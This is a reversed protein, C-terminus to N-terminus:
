VGNEIEEKPLGLLVSFQGGAGCGIMDVGRTATNDIKTPVEIDGASPGHGVQYSEGYGWSYPEAAKSIAINHHTGCAALKMPPINPIVTPVPLYRPNPQPLASSPIQSKAFGLQNIDLRGWALVKGDSTVALSHHEGGGIWVIDYGRLGEVITPSTVSAGDEGGEGIACQGFQNLGWAFTEGAANVAFSHYAGAGILRIKSLALPRPILGNTRSREIVRRGMQFQQGNGWAFVRGTTSLALVHDTGCAIQCISYPPFSAIPAPRPSIKDSKSYGLLGDSARFTGWSYVMGDSAIAVSISDGCALKLIKAGNPFGEVLGPKSENPNLLEEESDSDDEDKMDTDNQEAASPDIKTDRGLSGQDNVGWTWVRGDKDLAAVHMGGVAIDVVGIEDHSLHPNLRPRKVNRDKSTPGLGLEGMSGAGFVFVDGVETKAAPFDNITEENRRHSATSRISRVSAVSATSMPSDAGNTKGKSKASSPTAPEVKLDALKRKSSPNLTMPRPKAPGTATEKMSRKTTASDSPVRHKTKTPDRPAM